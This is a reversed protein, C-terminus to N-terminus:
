RYYFRALREPSVGLHYMLKTMQNIAATRLLGKSVWRRGSTVAKKGLVAISGLKKMRSIIDVDEMLPIEKYGGLKQFANRRIFIAQDGYPLSFIRCRMSVWAEVLRYKLAPDDISFTFAGGVVHPNDLAANLETAWGQDLITDAHLFLLIDGTALAAGINMQTGRGKPTDIVIVDAHSRAIERTRDKSGGDAIIIEGSFGEARISEICRAINMEENLAPIIVSIM